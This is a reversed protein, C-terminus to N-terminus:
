DGAWVQLAYTTVLEHTAISVTLSSEHVLTSSVKIMPLSTSACASFLQVVGVQGGAEGWGYLRYLGGEEFFCLIDAGSHLHVCSTGELSPCSFVLGRDAELVFRVSGRTYGGCM